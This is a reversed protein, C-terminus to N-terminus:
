LKYMCPQKNMRRYLLGEAALLLVLTLSAKAISGFSLDFTFLFIIITVVAIVRIFKFSAFVAYCM